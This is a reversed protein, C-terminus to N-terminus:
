RAENTKGGEKDLEALMRDAVLYACRAIESMDFKAMGKNFEDSFYVHSIGIVAQGAFDNRLSERIWADLEADGSRPVKLKIAAYERMTMGSDSCCYDMDGKASDFVPFAQENDNM